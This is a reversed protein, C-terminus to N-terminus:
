DDASVPRRRPIGRGDALFTKALWAEARRLRYQLTSTPVDEADAIEQISAGRPTEYYGYETALELAARQEHPIDPGVDYENGWEIPGSIREFELELGARLNGELEDYIARMATGDEALLRWRYEHGRQEARCLVGDGLHKAALYPVSRCGDDESQRSYILRSTPGSALVDYTWDIRCGGMGRVSSCRDIGSLQEDYEALAEQPGTVEDVRWMTETTAHCATTRAYLEPHDIFVDMLHDAGREYAVTFAFERM